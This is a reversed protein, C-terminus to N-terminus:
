VHARGIKWVATVEVIKLQMKVIGEYKLLSNKVELEYMEDAKKLEIMGKRGNAFELELYGTGDVFGDEFCFLLVEQENEGSIGLNCNDMDKMKKNEFIIKNEM